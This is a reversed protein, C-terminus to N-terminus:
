RRRTSGGRGRDPMAAGVLDGVRAVGNTQCWAALERVLRAPLSPDALAATCLGVASAGAMHYSLVDVLTEAGGSAVIPVSPDRRRLAVFARAVVAITQDRVAAGSLTGAGAGLAWSRRDPDLEAAPVGGGISVADAGADAVQAALAVVNPRSPSLKVLLPLDTASRLTATAEALLDDPDATPDKRHRARTEIAGADLEIASVGPRGDLLRGIARLEDHGRACVNVIVPAGWTAWRSGFRDLMAQLGPNPRGISSLLGAPVRVMRPPPDGVRPGLSTGRTVIAGLEGIDQEEALEVGYGAGGAAVVIPSELVLAGARAPALDVSLDPEAADFAPSTPSLAIPPAREFRAPAGYRLDPGRPPGQASPEASRARRGERHRCTVVMKRRKVLGEGV